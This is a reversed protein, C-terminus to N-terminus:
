IESQKNKLMKKPPLPKEQLSRRFDDIRKQIRSLIRIIRVKIQGDPINIIDIKSLDRGLAKDQKM